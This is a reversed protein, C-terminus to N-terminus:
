VWHSGVQATCTWCVSCILEFDSISHSLLQAIWCVWCCSDVHTRYSRCAHLQQRPASLLVLLCASHQSTFCAHKYRWCCLSCALVPYLESCAAACAAHSHHLNSFNHGVQLEYDAQSITTGNFTNTEIIDAGGNLYQMHIDEIVDPRTIVLIDNNGKLEHSHNAYREGRFDEEQLKFRQIMTGMAGDIFIIRQKMLSELQEFAASRQLPDARPTYSPVPPLDAPPALPDFGAPIPNLKPTLKPGVADALKRVATPKCKPELTAAYELMRETANDCRNLLVDEVFELLEKDLKSYVDENVQLFLVVDATVHYVCVCLWATRRPLM